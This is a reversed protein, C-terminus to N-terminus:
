EQSQMKCGYLMIPQAESLRFGIRTSGQVVGMQKFTEALNKLVAWTSNEGHSRLVDPIGSMVYTPLPFNVMSSNM